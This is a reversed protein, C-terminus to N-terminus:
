VYMYTFSSRSGTSHFILALAFSHYSFLLLYARITYKYTQGTVNLSPDLVSRHMRRLVLVEVLTICAQMGLDLALTLYQEPECGRADLARALDTNVGWGVHLGKAVLLLGCTLRAEQFHLHTTHMTTTASEKTTAQLALSRLCDRSALGTTM